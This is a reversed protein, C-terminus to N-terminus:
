RLDKTVTLRNKGEFVRYSLKDAINKVIMIGLGGIPRDNIDMDVDPDEKALPDFLVGNDTFTLQAVGGSLRIDIDLRPKKVDKFAYSIYNNMMEDIVIDLEAIKDGNLGKFLKNIRDTVAPIDDFTPSLLTIAESKVKELLLMTIDDFQEAAGAFAVASEYMYSLIDGDSRELAEKIRDYGFEENNENIGENLGDTYFLLRDGDELLLSDEIFPMGDFAGLVFNSEEGIQKAVGGRLLYPQEHGARVFTLKREREDYIGIFATIFLGEKNNLCLEKNVTEAIRGAHMGAKACSRIIEKGRMMFLAAPVGKGSVDAIVFFVKGEDTVFYDFLDGGVEKAPRIFSSIRIDGAILPKDPLSQMQIKSAINLEARMREDEARKMAIDESYAIVKSQLTFFDDSLDKIEDKTRVDADVPCLEGKEMRSTFTRASESLRTINKVLFRNALILYVLLIVVTAVFMIGILTWVFAGESAVLTSISYFFSVYAVTEGEVKVPTYSMYFEDDSLVKTKDSTMSEIFSEPAKEVSVPFNYGASISPTSDCMYVLNSREEDYYFVTCYVIGDVVAMREMEEIVDNYTANLVMADRSLGFSGSAGFVNATITTFYEKKESLDNAFYSMEEIEDANARYVADLKEKYYPLFSGKLGAANTVFEVSSLYEALTDSAITCDKKAEEKTRENFILSAVAISAVILAISLTATLLFIKKSITLRLLKKM